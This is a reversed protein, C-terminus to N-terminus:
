AAEQEGDNVGELDLGGFACVFIRVSPASQSVGLTTSRFFILFSTRDCSLEYQVELM